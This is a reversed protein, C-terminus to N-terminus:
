FDVGAYVRLTLKNFRKCEFSVVEGRRLNHQITEWCNKKHM